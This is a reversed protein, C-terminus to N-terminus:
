EVGSANSKASLPVAEPSLLRMACYVVALGCGLPISLQAAIRPLGTSPMLFGGTVRIWGFSEFILIFNLFAILALCLRDIAVQIRDSLLDVAFTISIHEGRGVSVAAGLSTAYVFLLTVFENAGTISSNFIYRMGVLALVTCTIALLCLALAFEVTRTLIHEFNKM